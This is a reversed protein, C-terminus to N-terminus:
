GGPRWTPARTEFLVFLNTGVRLFTCIAYVALGCWIGVWIFALSWREQPLPTTVLMPITLISVIFGTIIARKTFRLFKSMVNTNKIMKIFGESMSQITGYFTALFGTTISLLGFIATYLQDLHWRKAESVAVLHKGALCWFAVAGLAFIIPYVSEWTSRLESLLSNTRTTM